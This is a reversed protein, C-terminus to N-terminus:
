EDDGWDLAQGCQPCYPVAWEWVYEFENNCNPCLAMDCVLEGDVYGDGQYIPKKATAKEVLEDLSGFDLDGARCFHHDIVARYYEKQIRAIEARAKTITPHTEIEAKAM